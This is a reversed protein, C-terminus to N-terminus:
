EPTLNLDSLRPNTLLANMVMTQSTHIQDEAVSRARAPDNAIICDILDHHEHYMEDNRDQLHLGLHFFRESEDLLGAILETMRQNEAYSVVGVHLATNAQLFRDVAARDGPEYRALRCREDLQRLLTPDPMAEAARQVALPELQLRVDFVERARRITIPAIVHGSRAVPYVLTEQRLRNLATRVAARGLLYSDALRSESVHQGPTLECRIIARKITTYAATALSSDHPDSPASATVAAGQLNAM